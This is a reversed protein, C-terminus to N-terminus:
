LEMEKRIQAIVKNTKSEDLSAVADSLASYLNKPLVDSAGLEELATDAQEPDMADISTEIIMLLAKLKDNDITIRREPDKTDLAEQIAKRLGIWERIFLPHLNEITEIDRDRAAFELMKALGSLQVAGVTLLSGKLAHANIRYSVLGNDTKISKLDDMLKKRAAEMGRYFDKVAALANEENGLHLVLYDKDIGDINPIVTANEVEVPRRKILKPPLVTILANELDRGSVPKSIFGIFGGKEYQEMAGSVANATLAYCPTDIRMQRIKKLTEIGDMGPMMHDMFIVDFAKEKLLELCEKGSEAVTVHAHTDKLLGKVVNRNFENDDVALISAEPVYLLNGESPDTHGSVLRGNIDGIPDPNMVRQRIDFWFVSGKGYTSKVKLRSGMLALMKVTISMGLGTGEIGRNKKEEIREFEKFLKGMDEEKIGIGTDKVEIRMTGKNNDSANWRVKLSVSGEKTYKVANSLINLACQKIRADDGHLTAPLSPDVTVSFSLGKNKAKIETMNVIDHIMSQTDYDVPVIEMKGSEIKSLDLIDNIISLLLKGASYIDTAYRKIADEKTEKMIMEDMGLVANIPTRIEHSMNALFRSKAENAAIAAERSSEVTEKYERVVVVGQGATALIIFLTGIISSLTNNSLLPQTFSSEMVTILTFILLAICAAKWIWSPQTDHRILGGITSIGLLLLPLAILYAWSAPLFLIGQVCVACGILSSITIVKVIKNDDRLIYRVIFVPLISLICRDLIIFVSENGFFIALAGSGSLCYVALLFSSVIISIYAGSARDTRRQMATFVIMVGMCLLIIFSCAVPILSEKLRIIMSVDKRTIYASKINVTQNPNIPILSITLSGAEEIDPIILYRTSKKQEESENYFSKSGVTAAIRANNVTLELTLGSYARDIKRSIEATDSLTLTRPMNITMAGDSTSLHWGDGVDYRSGNTIAAESQNFNIAFLILSEIMLLTIFAGHIM